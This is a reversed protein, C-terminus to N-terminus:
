PARKRARQERARQLSEAALPRLEPPLLGVVIKLEESKGSRVVRMRLTSGPKLAAVAEILDLEDTFRIPSGNIAEVVDGRRVGAAAAPSGAQVGAVYLFKGGGPSQRLVFGAGLWPM